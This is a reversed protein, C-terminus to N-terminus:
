KFADVQNPFSFNVQVFRTVLATMSSVAEESIELGPVYGENVQMAITLVYLSTSVQNHLATLEAQSESYYKIMSSLCRENKLNQTMEYLDAIGEVLQVQHKEARSLSFVGAEEHRKDM